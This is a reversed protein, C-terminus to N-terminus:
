YKDVIAGFTSAKIFPLGKLQEVFRADGSVVVGIIKIDSKNITENDKSLKNFLTEYPKTYIGDISRARCITDIFENEPTNMKDGTRDLAKIGYVNDEDEIKNPTNNANEDEPNIKGNIDKHSRMDNLAEEDYANVWLWNLTVNEPLMTKVEDISYEKDFSLSIEVLKDNSINSLSALDNIYNEYNISPHYFKMKRRGITNYTQVEELEQESEAAPMFLYDGNDGYLGNILNTYGYTEKQDGDYVAKNGVFRYKTFDLEGTMFRDDQQHTGIYSNPYAINYYYVLGMLHKNGLKNLTTVNYMFVLFGLITVVLTSIVIGKIISLLKAKIILKNFRSEKKNEFIEELKKEDNM